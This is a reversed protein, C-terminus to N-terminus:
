GHVFVVDDNKKYADMKDQYKKMKYMSDAYECETMQSNHDDDFRNFVMAARMSDMKDKAAEKQAQTQEPRKFGKSQLYKWFNTPGKNSTSGSKKYNKSSGGLRREGGRSRRPYTKKGDSKKGDYTKGGKGKYKKWNGSQRYHQFRAKLDDTIQDSSKKGVGKFETVDICGNNNIDIAKFENQYQNQLDKPIDAQTCKTKKNPDCEEKKPKTWRPKKNYKYHNQYDSNVQQGPSWQKSGVKNKQYDGRFSKDQAAVLAFLAAVSLFLVKMDSNTVTRSLFFTCVWSNQALGICGLPAKSVAM